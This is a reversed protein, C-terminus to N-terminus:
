KVAVDGMIDNSVFHVLDHDRSDFPNGYSWVEEELKVVNNAFKTQFSPSDEHHRYADSSDQKLVCFQEFERVMRAEEPVCLM